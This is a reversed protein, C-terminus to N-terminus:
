IVNCHSVITYCPNSKFSVFSMGYSAQSPSSHSTLQSYKRVMNYCVVGDYSIENMCWGGDMCRDGTSGGWCVVAMLAVIRIQWSWPGSPNCYVSASIHGSLPHRLYINAQIDWCIARSHRMWSEWLHCTWSWSRKVKGKALSLPPINVYGVRKTLRNLPHM